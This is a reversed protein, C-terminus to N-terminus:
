NSGARPRRRFLALILGLQSGEAMATGVVVAQNPGSPHRAETAPSVLELPAPTMTVNEIRVNPPEAARLEAEVEARYTRINEDIFRSVLDQTVQRAILPDSNRFSVSVFGLAPQELLSSVNISDRMKQVAEATRGQARAEEYLHFTEMVHVLNERSIVREGVTLIQATALGHGRFMSPTRMSIVAHSEYSSPIIRLVLGAVLAAGIGFALANIVLGTRFQMDIAGKALDLIDKWKPEAADLLSRFESEYRERWSRPYLRVLQHLLRKM